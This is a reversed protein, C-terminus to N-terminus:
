HPTNAQGGHKVAHLANDIRVVSCALAAIRANMADLANWVRADTGFAITGRLDDLEARLRDAELGIALQVRQEIATTTSENM